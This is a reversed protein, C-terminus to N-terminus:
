LNAEKMIADVKKRMEKRLSDEIEERVEQKVDKVISEFFESFDFLWNEERYEELDQKFSEIIIQTLSEEIAKINKESFFQMLNNTKTM